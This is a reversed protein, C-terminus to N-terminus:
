FFVFAFVAALCVNISAPCGKSRALCKYDVGKSMSLSKVSSNVLYKSITKLTLCSFRSVALTDTFAQCSEQVAPLTSFSAPSM